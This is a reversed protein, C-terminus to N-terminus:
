IILQVISINIECYNKNKQKENNQDFAEMVIKSHPKQNNYIPDLM